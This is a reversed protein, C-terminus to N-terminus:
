KFLTVLTVITGMFAVLITLKDTANTIKKNLYYYGIKGFQILSLIMMSTIIVILIWTWLDRGTLPLLMLIVSAIIVSGSM